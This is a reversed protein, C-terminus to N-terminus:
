ANQEPKTEVMYIQVLVLVLLEFKFNFGVKFWFYIQSVIFCKFQFSYIIKQDKKLVTSKIELSRKAQNFITETYKTNQTKLMVTNLTSVCLFYLFCFLLFFYSKEQRRKKKKKKMLLVSFYANITSVLYQAIQFHYISINALYPNQAYKQYQPYYKM